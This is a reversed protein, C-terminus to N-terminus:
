GTQGPSSSPQHQNATSTDSGRVKFVASNAKVAIHHDWAAQTLQWYEEIHRHPRSVYTVDRFTYAWHGPRSCRRLVLYHDTALRVAPTAHGIFMERSSLLIEYLTHMEVVNSSRIHKCLYVPPRAM